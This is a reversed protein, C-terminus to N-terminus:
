EPCVTERWLAQGEDSELFSYVEKHFPSVDLDDPQTDELHDILMKVLCLAARKPTPLRSDVFSMFLTSGDGPWLQFATIHGDDTLQGQFGADHKAFTFDTEEGTLLGDGFQKLIRNRHKDSM